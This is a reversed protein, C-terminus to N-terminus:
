CALSRKARGSVLFGVPYGELSPVHPLSACIVCVECEPLARPIRTLFRTLVAERSGQARALRARGRALPDPEDFDIADAGESALALVRRRGDGPRELAWAAVALVTELEPGAADDVVFLVRAQPGVRTTLVVLQGLRATARWHIRRGNDGAAFPRLHMPGTPALPGPLIGLTEAPELPPPVITRPPMPAPYVALERALSRDESRRILGLEGHVALALREIRHIGRPLPDLELRETRPEGAKVEDVLLGADGAGDPRGLEIATEVCTFAHTGRLTVDVPIALGSPWETPTSVDVSLGRLDGRCRWWERAAYAFLIAATLVYTTRGFVAGLLYVAAASAVFVNYRRSFRIM